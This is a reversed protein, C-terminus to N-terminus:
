PSEDIRPQIRGRDWAFFMAVGLAMSGLGYAVVIPRSAGFVALWGVLAVLAPLPYLPMLFPMRAKTRRLYAVTVIQGVFQILIRSTLLAMIVTELDALCALASLGGVLLLSRHPFDGSPHVAALGRFFHGAKAAAYPVRSYGLLAAFTGALATWLIFVRVVGAAGPGHVRRAFDTAISQSDAVGSPGLVGLLALNMLLYAAGIVGVSILISRPVTRAPDEVEDGLYCVQYYGLYCYMALALGQGIKPLRPRTALDPWTAALNHPDSRILGVVIIGLVTLVMGACLAVMLRGAVGIRRYALVVLSIMAGAALLSTPVGPAFAGAYQAFGVAGSAVELPASFLFQWVFLFKM